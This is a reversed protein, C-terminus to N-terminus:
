AGVEEILKMGVRKFTRQKLTVNGDDDEYEVTCCVDGGAGFSPWSDSAQIYPPEGEITIEPWGNMPDSFDYFKVDFSGGWYCGDVVLTSSWKHFRHSVWCFGQSADGNAREGTQLNVITQRQYHEGCVLFDGKPHSEVFLNPFAHYNRRVVAIEHDGEYVTGQTVGWTSPGTEFTAIVLKYKESPSAVYKRRAIRENEPKFLDPNM